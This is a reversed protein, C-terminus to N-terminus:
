PKIAMLFLTILPLATALGGAVYWRRALGWYDDPLVGTAASARTIRSQRLQTPILITLWILGSLAFGSFGVTLWTPGLIGGWDGALVFGSVTILVAGTATFAVDTVTVLRQAYAIVSLERTRDALTKWVATVTLNGLFVVVGLVHLALWTAHSM